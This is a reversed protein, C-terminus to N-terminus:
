NQIEGGPGHDTKLKSNQTGVRGTTLKSNQTKLEWGGWSRQFTQVNSRKFTGGVWGAEGATLRM